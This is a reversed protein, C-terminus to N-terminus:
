NPSISASFTRLIQVQAPGSVFNTAAFQNTKFGSYLNTNIFAFGGGGSYSLFNAYASVPVIDGNTDKIRATIPTRSRTSTGYSPFCNFSVSSSTFSFAMLGTEIHSSAALTNTNFVQDVVTIPGPFFQFNTTVDLENTRGKRRIVVNTTSGDLATKFILMGNFYNTDYDIALARVINVSDIRFIQPRDHEVAGTAVPIGQYAGTVSIDLLQEVSAASGAVACAMLACIVVRISKM